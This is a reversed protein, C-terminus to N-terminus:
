EIIRWRHCRMGNEMVYAVAHCGSVHRNRGHYSSFVKHKDKPCIERQKFQTCFNGFNCSSCIRFLANVTSIRVVSSQDDNGIFNRLKSRVRPCHCICQRVNIRFLNRISCQHHCNFRKHAHTHTHCLQNGNIQMSHSHGYIM